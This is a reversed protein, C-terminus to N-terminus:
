ELAGKLHAALSDLSGRYERIEKLSDAASYASDFVQQIKKLAIGIDGSVKLTSSRISILDARDDQYLVSTRSVFLSAHELTDQLASLCDLVLDKVQNPDDTSEEKIEVEYPEM